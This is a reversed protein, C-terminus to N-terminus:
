PWRKQGILTDRECYSTGRGAERRARRTIATGSLWLEPPWAAREQRKLWKVESAECLREDVARQDRAVGGPAYDRGLLLGFGVM